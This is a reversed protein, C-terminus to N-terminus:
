SRPRRGGASAQSESARQSRRFPGRGNRPSRRRRRRRRVVPASRVPRERRRRGLSLRQRAPRRGDARGASSSPHGLLVDAGVYQLVGLAQLRRGDPHQASHSSSQSSPSPTRRRHPFEHRPDSQGRRSGGHRGRLTLEGISHRRRPAGGRLSSGAAPGGASPAAICQGPVVGGARVVGVRVRVRMMMAVPRRVQRGGRGRGRGVGGAAGEGGEAKRFIEARVVAGEVDFRGSRQGGVVWPQPGDGRRVGVRPGEVEVRLPARIVAAPPPRHSPLPGGEAIGAEGKPRRGPVVSSRVAEAPVVRASAGYRVLDGGGDAVRPDVGDIRGGGAPAVVLRRRSGVAAVRRRPDVGAGAGTSEDIMRAQYTQVAGEDRVPGGEENMPVVRSSAGEPFPEEIGITVRRPSPQDIRRQGLRQEPVHANLQHAGHPGDVPGIQRAPRDLQIVYQRHGLLPDPASRQLGQPVVLVALPPAQM